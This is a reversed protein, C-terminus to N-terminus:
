AKEYEDITFTKMTVSHLDSMFEEKLSKNIMRHRTVNNLNEFKQSVIVIEFHSEVNERFNQHGRHEESVDKVLFFYPEFNDVLIKEIKFKRNM